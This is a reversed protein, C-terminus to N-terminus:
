HKSREFREKELVSTCITRLGKLLLIRENLGREKRQSAPYVRADRKRQGSLGFKARRLSTLYFHSYVPWRTM